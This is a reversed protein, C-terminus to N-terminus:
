GAHHFEQHASMEGANLLPQCMALPLACMLDGGNLALTRQIGAPLPLRGPEAQEPLSDIITARFGSCQGNAVILPSGSTNAMGTGGPAAHFFGSNRVSAIADRPCEITPGADFLDVLGRHRFGEQKLLHLAPRTDPHVQGIVAQAEITMDSIDFPGRPVLQELFRADSQASLQTVTSFDLDVVQYRLWNWFPSHGHADSVGRMEAIVTNAFREPHLAMFLFRVKSLLKGANAQRYDPRLYLSCIETCGAYHECRTLTERALGAPGTTRDRKFHHLPRDLGVSAQIGTTGMIEHSHEDELVFLYQENTPTSVHREFSKRSHEIKQALADRDPMLSTFGPGSEVAIQYLPDLDRLTIPRILM